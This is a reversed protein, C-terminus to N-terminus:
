AFFTVVPFHVLALRTPLNLPESFTFTPSVERPSSRRDLFRRGFNPFYKRASLLVIEVQGGPSSPHQERALSICILDIDLLAPRM